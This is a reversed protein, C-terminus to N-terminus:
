PSPLFRVALREQLRRHFGPVRQAAARTLERFAESEAGPAVRPAAWIADPFHRDGRWRPIVHWHLHPVMNGLAALNVKDPRPDALFTEVLGLIPDDPAMEVSAFLSM